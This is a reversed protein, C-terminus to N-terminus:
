KEANPCLFAEPLLLGQPMDEANKPLKKGNPVLQAPLFIWFMFRCGKKQQYVQQARIRLSSKISEKKYLKFNLLHPVVILVRINGGGTPKM